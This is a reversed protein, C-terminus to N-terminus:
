YEDDTDSDLASWDMESARLTSPKYTYSALYDADDDDNNYVNQDAKERRLIPMPLVVNIAQAKPKIQKSLKVTIPIKNVEAVEPVKALASAYSVTNTSETRKLTTSCLAPFEEKVQTIVKASSTFSVSKTKTVKIDTENDSNDNDLLEEFLNASKKKKEAVKEKKEAYEAQRLAKTEAKKKDALVTCYSATHGSGSCYTCNLSLLTPCAVKGKPGPETKVYHSTYEKETKGADYCVKCFQKINNRSSM